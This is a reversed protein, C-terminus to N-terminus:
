ATPLPPFPQPFGEQAADLGQEQPLQLAPTDWAATVFTVLAPVVKTCGSCVCTDSPGALSVRLGGLGRWCGWDHSLLLFGFWSSAQLCM